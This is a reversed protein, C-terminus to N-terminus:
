DRIQTNEFCLIKIKIKIQCIVFLPKASVESECAANCSGAEGFALRRDSDPGGAAVFTICFRQLVNSFI